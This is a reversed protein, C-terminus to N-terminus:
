WALTCLAQPVSGSVPSGKVLPQLLTLKAVMNPIGSISGNAVVVMGLPQALYLPRSLLTILPVANVGM